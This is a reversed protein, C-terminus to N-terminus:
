AEGTEITDVDMEISQRGDRITLIKNVIEAEVALGTIRDRIAIHDGLEAATMDLRNEDVKVSNEPEFEQLSAVAAENNAYDDVSDACDVFVTQLDAETWTPPMTESYGDGTRYLHHPGDGALIFAHNAPTTCGSTSTFSVGYDQSIELGDTLDSVASACVNVCENVPDYALSLRAGYARFTSHIASALVNYRWKGSVTVGANGGDVQFLDGFRDGILTRLMYNADVNSMVVYGELWEVPEILKRFLLGRWTPGRLTVSRAGTNHQILTVPGGWETGASYIYHGPQIPNAEWTKQPITLSFTNDIMSANPSGKIQMDASLIETLERQEALFQNAHVWRLCDM